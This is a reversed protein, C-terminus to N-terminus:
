SFGNLFLLFISVLISAEDLVDEVTSPPDNDLIDELVKFIPLNIKKMMPISVFLFYVEQQSVPNFTGEEFCDLSMTKLTSYLLARQLFVNESDEISEMVDDYLDEQSNSWSSVTPSGTLFRTFSVSRSSGLGVVDTIINTPGCPLTFQM